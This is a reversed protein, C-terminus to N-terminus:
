IRHDMCYGSRKLYIFIAMM